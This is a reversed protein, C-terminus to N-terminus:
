KVRSYYAEKNDLDIAKKGSSTVDGSHILHLGNLSEDVIFAWLENDSNVIETVSNNNELVDYFEMKDTRILRTEKTKINKVYFAIEQSTVVMLTDNLRINKLDKYVWTPESGSLNWTGIIKNMFNNRLIPKLLDIKIKSEKGIESEPNIKYAFLLPEIAKNFQKKQFYSLGLNYKNEQLWLKKDNQSWSNLAFLLLFAIISQKM